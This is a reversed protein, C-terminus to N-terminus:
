TLLCKLHLRAIFVHLPYSISQNLPGSSVYIEQNSALTFDNARSHVVAAEGSFALTRNEVILTKQTSSSTKSIELLKLINSEERRRTPLRRNSISADPSDHLFSIHLASNDQRL